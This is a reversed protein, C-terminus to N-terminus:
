SAAAPSISPVAPLGKLGSAVDSGNVKSYVGMTLEVTSHRALQQAVRPHVNARALATVFQVRLGHFDFFGDSTKYDIKAAKLDVQLMEAAKNWWYGPWPKGSKGSLWPALTEALDRPLPQRAEQRNKADIARLVIYPYDGELKFDAAELSALEQARLGTYGAVVYLMARDQGTLRQVTAGKAAKQVLKSFQEETIARRERKEDGETAISGMLMLPSAPMRNQRVAWRCFMKLATLYHNCTHCSLKEEGRRRAALYGTVKDTADYAILHDITTFGCADLIAKIRRITQGIHSGARGKGELYRQFADVHEKLPTAKPAEFPDVRGAKVNLVREELDHAKQKTLDKTACGKVTRWKGTEDQYKISYNKALKGSKARRRFISAM